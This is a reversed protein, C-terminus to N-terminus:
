KPNVSFMVKKDCLENFLKAGMLIIVKQPPAATGPEEGELCRRVAEQNDINSESAANALALLFSNTCEPELGAVVKAARIDLPAGQM